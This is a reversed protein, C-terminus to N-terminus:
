HAAPRHRTAGRLHADLFADVQRLLSEDTFAPGGHVGNVVVFGATVGMARLADRLRESQSLPVECDSVGHVILAAADGASAYGIPSAANATDPCTRPDCGLMTMYTAPSACAPPNAALQVFDTVGYWDVFAAVSSSQERSGEAPDDLAAVGDTTGLLAALTGGTGMGWAGIRAPDIGYTAANARLWRIAAKADKINGPFTPRVSVVAVVYGRSTGRSVISEDSADIFAVIAPMGARPQAPTLLDLTLAMGDAVAYTASTRSFSADDNQITVTIGHTVVYSAPPVIVLSFTEDSEPDTDGFITV